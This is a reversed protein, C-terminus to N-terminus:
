LGDISNFPCGLILFLHLDWSRIPRDSEELPLPRPNIVEEMAGHIEAKGM